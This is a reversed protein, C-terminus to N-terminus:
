KEKVQAIVQQGTLMKLKSALYKQNFWVAEWLLENADELVAKSLIKGNATRSTEISLLKLLMTNKEKINIGTFNKHIETRDEYDRPFWFILDQVTTLGWKALASIYNDTTRLINKTLPASLM